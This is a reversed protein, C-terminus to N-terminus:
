LWLAQLRPAAHAVHTREERGVRMRRCVDAYVDVCTAACAVHTREERGVCVDAYTLM